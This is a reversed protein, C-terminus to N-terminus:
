EPKEKEEDGTKAQAAGEKLAKESDTVAKKFNMIGKGMGSGIEPLRGAGFVILVILFIVVLEFWGLGMM